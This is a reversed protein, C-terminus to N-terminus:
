DDAKSNDDNDGLNTYGEALAEVAVIIPVYEVDSERPIVGEVRRIIAIAATLQRKETQNLRVRPQDNQDYDVTLTKM